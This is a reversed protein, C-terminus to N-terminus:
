ARHQACVLISGDGNKAAAVARKKCVADAADM